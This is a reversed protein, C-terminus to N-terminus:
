ETPQGALDTAALDLVEPAEAGIMAYSIDNARWYAVSRSGRRIAVPQLPAASIARVAFISAGHGSATRIMLQLAPGQDSPFLQVDTVRWGPPLRPVRIRTQRLVEGADYDPSEVFSAMSERLLGTSYAMLAESVYAPPSAVVERQPVAFLAFAAFVAAAASLRGVQPLWRRRPAGQLRRQLRDAADIMAPPPRDRPQHILRLATRVRLDAMLRAAAAPERSLHDEVALRRELCLEDDMYAELEFERVADTM